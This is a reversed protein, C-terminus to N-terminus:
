GPEIGIQLQLQEAPDVSDEGVLASLGAAPLKKLLLLRTSDRTKERSVEVETPESTPRDPILIININAIQIILIRHIPRSNTLRQPYQPKLNRRRIFSSTILSTRAVNSRHKLSIQRNRSALM